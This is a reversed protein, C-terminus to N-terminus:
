RIAWSGDFPYETLPMFEIHTYGMEKVYPILEEALKRYSFVNGDEYKRWSGAHMEYVNIPANKHPHAKKHEFWESDNWEYGHIEYVRSANDPRTQCHFAYPDTKMVKQMSPTEVCYKYCAYEWVGEIFLEWVGSNDIKYMYNADPNWDNFDGVVSVSLANPAWVRFVVGDRDGWNVFHSGMFEYATVSEGQLFQELPTRKDNLSFAM